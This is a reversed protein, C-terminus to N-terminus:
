NLIVDKPYNVWNKYVGGVSEVSHKWFSDGEALMINRISSYKSVLWSNQQIEGNLQNESWGSYGLFFKVKGDISNGGSIYHLLSDFDGDFYLNDDIKVSNPINDGLSHIFYLHNSLVPGGLYIPIPSVDNIGEFYSNVLLNTKKNLVFGMSGKENHDVLLVVSRHFYVDMMFPESILLYGKEPSIDNHGIKFIDQYQIM